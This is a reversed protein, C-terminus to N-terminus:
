CGGCCLLRAEPQSSHVWIGLDGSGLELINGLIGRRQAIEENQGGKSRRGRGGLEGVALRCWGRRIVTTCRKNEIRCRGLSVPKTSAPSM